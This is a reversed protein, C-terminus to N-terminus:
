SFLSPQPFSRRSPWCRWGSCAGAALKHRLPSRVFSRGRVPRSLLAFIGAAILVGAAFDPRCTMVAYSLLPFSLLLLALCVKHWIQLGRALRKLLALYVLVLGVNGAYPAWNHMGLVLFSVFAEITSYPSHPPDRFLEKIFEFAGLDYFHELRTAGDLLYIVDDFTPFLLLRGHRLSYQVGALTFGAALALWSFFAVMSMAARARRSSSGSKDPALTRRRPGNARTSRWPRLSQVRERTQM